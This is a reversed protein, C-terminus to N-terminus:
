PTVSVWISVLVGLFAAVAFMKTWPSWTQAEKASEARSSAEQAEKADKLALATATVTRASSIADLDLRQTTLKLVSIDNEVQGLRQGHDTVQFLILKLTGEIRTLQVDVTGGSPEENEAAM